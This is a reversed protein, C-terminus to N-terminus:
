FQCTDYTESCLSVSYPVKWCCVLQVARQLTAISGRQTGHIVTGSASAAMFLDCRGGLYDRNWHIAPNRGFKM